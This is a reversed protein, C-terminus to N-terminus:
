RAFTFRLGTTFLVDNTKKGPVPNSLYRDSITLQWSLWNSIQTSQGLDFNLRYDGPENLNNFMRFSQRLTAIKLFRHVLNNGWYVEGSNRTLPTSFKDHDYDFGGVLGLQTRESKVADFGVGGGIVFRLDLSQFGDYEYDNFLNLFARHSINRDYSWGGRVADATATKNGLRDKGKSYVQDFHIGTRDSRTQRAARVATTITSAYSNGYALSVGLDAYGAWLALLGPHELREFAKQEDANRITKVEAVAVSEPAAATSIVLKGEQTAIRGVVPKGDPLVVTVAEDSNIQTVADWPITVAGFIDSKIILSSGDKKQIKGTVRDGNKLIVQDAWAASVLSCLLLLFFLIRTVM